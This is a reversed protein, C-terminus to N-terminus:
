FEATFTSEGVNPNKRLVRARITVVTFTITSRITNFLGLRM